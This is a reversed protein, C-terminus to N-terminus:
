RQERRSGCHCGGMAELKGAQVSDLGGSLINDIDVLFRDISQGKERAPAHASV